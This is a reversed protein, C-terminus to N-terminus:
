DTSANKGDDYVKYKLKITYNVKPVGQNNVLM